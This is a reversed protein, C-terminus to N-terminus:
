LPVAAPLSYAFAERYCPHVFTALPFPIFLREGWILVEPLCVFAPIRVTGIQRCDATHLTVQITPDDPTM